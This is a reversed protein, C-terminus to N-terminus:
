NKSQVFRVFSCNPNRERHIDYPDMERTWGSVELSCAECRATDGNGTYIFGATRLRTASYVGHSKLRDCVKVIEQRVNCKLRSFSRKDETDQTFYCYRSTCTAM